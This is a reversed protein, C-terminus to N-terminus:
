CLDDLIFSALCYYSQLKTYIGTNLCKYGKISTRVAEQIQQM